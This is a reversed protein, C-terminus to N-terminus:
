RYFGRDTLVKTIVGRIEGARELLIRSMEVSEEYTPARSRTIFFSLTFTSQLNGIIYGFLTDKLEGTYPKFNDLFDVTKSVSKPTITMDVIKEIQGRLVSRKM